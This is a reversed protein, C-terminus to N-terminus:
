SLSEFNWNGSFWSWGNQGFGDIVGDDCDVSDTFDNPGFPAGSGGPGGTSATIGFSLVGDEFDELSTPGAFLGAPTDAPRTLVLPEPRESPLAAKATLVAMQRRAWRWITPPLAENSYRENACYKRLLKSGDASVRPLRGDGSLLIWVRGLAQYLKDSRVINKNLETILEAHRYAQILHGRLIDVIRRDRETFDSGSRNVAIGLLVPAASPLPIVLQRQTDFIRYFEYYLATDRWKNLSLFDSIKALPGMPDQAFHRVLPHEDMHLEFFQKCSDHRVNADACDLLSVVRLRLPNLESYSLLDAQVVTRVVRM